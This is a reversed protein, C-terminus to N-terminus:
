QILKAILNLNFKAPALRFKLGLAVGNSRQGYYLWM